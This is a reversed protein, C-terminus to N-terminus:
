ILEDDYDKAEKSICRSVYWIYFVFGACILLDFSVVIVSLKWRYLGDPFGPVYILGGECQSLSYIQSGQVRCSQPFWAWDIEFKCYKQDLCEQDFVRKLDKSDVIDCSQDYNQISEVPNKGQCSNDQPQLLAFM